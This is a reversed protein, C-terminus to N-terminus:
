KQLDSAMNPAPRVVALVRCRDVGGLLWWGVGGAQVECTGALDVGVM